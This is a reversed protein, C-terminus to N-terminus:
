ARHRGRKSHHVHVTKIPRHKSARHAPKPARIKIPTVTLQLAYKTAATDNLIAMIFYTGAALQKITIVQNQHRKRNSIALINGSADMLELQCHRRLNQLRITVKSLATLTFSYTAEPSAPTLTGRFHHTGRIVAGFTGTLQQGVTGGGAVVTVISSYASLGSSNEARVRYQYVAGPTLGTDTFTNNTVGSAIEIFAMDNPGLREIHYDTAGPSPTWNLTITTPSSSIATLNTPAPLTNSNAGSSLAIANATAPISQNGNSLDVAIVRYYSTTGPTASTDNFATQSLSSADLKVFPGSPSGARYVDYGISGNYSVPAWQLGVGGAPNGFAQLDSPTPPLNAPRMNTVVYALDQYDYNDFPGNQYDMVMLWANPIVGGSQDRLPYFRVAHGSRHYVTIDTTNLNDQSYEGDLDWGFSGSPKFSAQALNNTGKIHPLLTQGEDPNVQFLTQLSLSNSAPYWSTTSQNGQNHFSDLMQVSVPLTPDAAQWLGSAVEQGYYVPTSGQTLDPQVGSAITINYGALLNVITQLSPENEHETQYQWYGALTVVRTPNNPDNSAITLTATTVGGAANTSIGNTTATDNTQNGSHPPDSQAIFKITINRSGGAPITFPVQPPNVLQWDATDSLSLASIVLPAQGSNDIQLMGTDDVTDGLTPNTIQIRNFIMRDTFPLGDLNQLGLVPAGSAGPAAKVNRIIGVFNIFSNFQPSNFDEAAVVFANPVVSGDANELPFFRFKQPHSPDLTNFSSESYHIDPQGNPTSVGPFIGYLGFPANGPDFSTAGLANPNVTQADGQAITFLETKDNIDGPTYYGFRLVPASSADFSALPTITVPGTGAKELRPMSVEQSSPDPTEPYQSSANGNADNPGDGVITPIDYARLIQVLSPENVGFQGPTGIGHLQVTQTPNSPDNTKIQLLAGHLGTSSATFDINVGTSQGAGLTAPISSRNTITFAGVDAASYGSETVISFAGSGLNLPLTGTNTITLTDTRSPGSGAFGQAVANFVLVSQNVTATPHPTIPVLLTIRKAGLESVYIYGNAPDEVLNVPNDFGSLGAIHRQESTITGNAGPTLVVIDGGASYEDVLIKGNLAGNFVNGSYQIVGDPSRHLGFDFVPFQYSPDPQTGVPYATIEAPDAGSTPNGGDLVFQNRAPDPHGYYGGQVINYLYDSEVQPVANLGPVGPGAPTNGGASAGNTPALLHGDQTWILQFANRVGTAYITLPAGAASPNYTGGADPTLVNLPHGLALAAGTNLRLIAASLLHEPRMGWVTDPAGMSNEAAQCFYLAGDPGFVPQDVLHDSVSRPLDIVVDQVSTLGSGSMRTIKSSFDPANTFTYAGNSVWLIPNSATSAPDFAFGTLLRPGGNATQLTTIIQPSGLTGDANVPYRYISGDEAGAWLDGDPGMRLTTFPVGQATPLTVQQFALSSDVTAGGTGTTFTETFPVVAAGTNDHVGSTIQFTYNTNADLLESPQLIIADDGGTTNVVAPIAAHDSTRFLVVTGTTVTNFDLAGNPFFFDATVAADRSVNTAGNAPAITTVSANGSLLCRQELQEVVARSARSTRRTPRRQM